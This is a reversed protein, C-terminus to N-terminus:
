FDIFNLQFPSVVTWSFATKDKIDDMALLTETHGPGAQAISYM